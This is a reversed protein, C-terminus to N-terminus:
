GTLHEFVWHATRNRADYSVVYDRYLFFFTTSSSYQNHVLLVYYYTLFALITLWLERWNPVPCFLSAQTGPHRAGHLLIDPQKRTCVVKWTTSVIMLVITHNSLSLLASEPTTKFNRWFKGILLVTQVLIESFCKKEYKSIDSLFYHNM